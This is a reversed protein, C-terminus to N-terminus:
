RGGRARGRSRHRRRPEGSRRVRERDARKVLALERDRRRDPVRYVDYAKGEYEFTAPAARCSRRNPSSSRSPPRSRVIASRLLPSLFAALVVVLSSRSSSRARRSRRARRGAARPAGDVGAAGRTRASDRAGIGAAMLASARTTSGAGRRAPVPRLTLSCRSRRVAALGADRRLVHEPLHLLEQLPLPQLLADHRGARGTGNNLVLPVLFYQLVEVVGLVLTYFIVPSMMPLTVNRSSAWAAPATSGRRTTCSPRSAGCAPSTSSSRGGRHGLHGIFVLGPYIWRRTTSGTPRTRSARALRLFENIWGTELDLMGQWILVGAVFPVVYPLFFLVRFAGRRAPPPQQAAARRRVAPARRGAALAARVQVHRRAVGLGPRRRAADAYNRLGVFPLPEAQDLNINTFTFVLTAIM